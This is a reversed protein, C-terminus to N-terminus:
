LSRRLSSAYRIIEDEISKPPAYGLVSVARSIDLLSSRVDFKRPELFEIKAKTSLASEILSIVRLLPIGVGSGINFIPMVDTTVAYCTALHFAKAVHPVSIFDRVNTGDGFLQLATNDLISAICAGIVGVGSLANQGEGFPNSIRLVVNEMGHLQNYMLLIKECTVKAIGYHNIPNLQQSEKCPQDVNGYVTGGSSAFIVRTSSRGSIHELIQTLLRIESDYALAPQEMSSRPTSGSVLFIVNDFNACLEGLHEESCLDAVISEDADANLKRDYCVVHQRSKALERVM